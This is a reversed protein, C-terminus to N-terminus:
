DKSSLVICNIPLQARCGPYIAKGFRDTRKLYKILAEECLRHTTFKDTLEKPRQGGKYPVVFFYGIEDQKIYYEKRGRTAYKATHRMKTFIPPTCKVKRQNPWM